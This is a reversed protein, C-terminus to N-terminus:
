KNKKKQYMESQYVLDFKHIEANCLDVITKMTQIYNFKIHNPTNPDRVKSLYDKIIPPIMQENTIM